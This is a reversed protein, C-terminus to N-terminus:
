EMYTYVIQTYLDVVVLFAFSHLLTIPILCILTFIIISESSYKGDSKDGTCDTYLNVKTRKRRLAMLVLVGIIKKVCAGYFCSKRQM